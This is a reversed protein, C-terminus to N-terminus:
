GLYWGQALGLWLYRRFCGSRPSDSPPPTLFADWLQGSERDLCHYWPTAKPVPLSRGTSTTRTALASRDSKGAELGVAVPQGCWSPCSLPRTKSRARSPSTNTEGLCICYTQTWLSENNKCHCSHLRKWHGLVKLLVLSWPYKWQFSLSEREAHSVSARWGSAIKMETQCASVQHHSGWFGGLGLSPLPLKSSRSFKTDSFLIFFDNLLLSHAFCMTLVTM